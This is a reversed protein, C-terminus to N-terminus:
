ALRALDARLDVSRRSTVELRPDDLADAGPHALAWDAVAADREAALEALVKAYFAVLAELYLGVPLLEGAASLRFRPLMAAVAAAAYWAEGTVWRNTTFLETPLGDGDLAVAGLHCPSDPQPAPLLPAVGAPMGKPRLFLHVHGGGGARHCHYYAQAHSAFDYLDGEPYHVLPTPQVGGTLLSVPSVGDGAMAQVLALARRGAAADTM